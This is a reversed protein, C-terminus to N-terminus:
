NLRNASLDAPCVSGAVGPQRIRAFRPLPPHFHSAFVWNSCSEVLDGISRRGCRAILLPNRRDGPARRSLPAFKAEVAVARRLESRDEAKECRAGLTKRRGCPTQPSRPGRSKFCLTERASLDGLPEVDAMLSYRRQDCSVAFM